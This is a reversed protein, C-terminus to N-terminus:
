YPLRKFVFRYKNPFLGCSALQRLMAIESMTGRVPTKLLAQSCCSGRLAGVAHIFWPSVNGSTSYLETGGHGVDIDFGEPRYKVALNELWRIDAVVLGTLDPICADAFM